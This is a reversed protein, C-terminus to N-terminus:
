VSNFALSFLHKKLLSKFVPLSSAQRVCLPLDNWLKPAAVAFARDGRRKLRTKPVVLLLQDASRLSRSPTYKNLLQALYPPALGNLCKYVYLLLKFHIRHHVPLWHLSALIPTIHEHRHTRTLLRAAANQVLQLRAIPAQGIGVYLANCYDLRTTIFAHILKELDPRPLISKVKSIQRLQFFSKQVVSGIQKDLKLESDLKVGLNSVVHKNYPALPGLDINISSSSSGPGFLIVETKKNNFSLFNLAMWATIENFCTLLPQISSAANQKLPLYMQCDDAYFHFSIGHKRFISGLPLTNSYDLGIWDM